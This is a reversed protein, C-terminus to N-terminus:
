VNIESGIIWFLTKENFYNSEKLWNFAKAEYNPHLVIGDIEAYEKKDYNFGKQNYLDIYLIKNYFDTQPALLNNFYSNIKKLRNPATGALIIKKINSKKFKELGLLLGIATVGSGCVICIKDVGNPINEVQNAISNILIYRNTEQIGYKVVFKGEELAKKNITHYLVSHRGSNLIETTTNLKELLGLSKINSLKTGGFYATCPVKFHNAVAAVIVSQPSNISCGTLVGNSTKNKNQEFLEVCCRLKTGNVNCSNFPAYLDDRKIWIPKHFEVPTIEYL